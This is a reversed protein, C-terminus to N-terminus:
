WNYNVSIHKYVKRHKIGEVQHITLNNSKKVIESPGVGKELESCIWKVKSESLKNSKSKIKIDPLGNLLYGWNSKIKISHVTSNSLQYERSIDITRAGNSLKYYIEIVQNEDLITRGNNTGSNDNLGVAFAHSQNEERTVWELNSVNNNTKIGDIHNVEPKNNPNPLYTLAILRHVLFKSRKGNDCTIGVRMYGGKIMSPNIPIYGRMVSKFIKGNTTIFYKKAFPIQKM